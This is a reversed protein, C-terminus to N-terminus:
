SGSRLRAFSLQRRGTPAVQLFGGTGASVIMESSRTDLRKPLVWATM